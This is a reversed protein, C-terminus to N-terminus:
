ASKEKKKVFVRITHSRFGMLDPRKAIVEVVCALNGKDREAKAEAKIQKAAAKKEAAEEDKELDTEAIRRDRTQEAAQDPPGRRM